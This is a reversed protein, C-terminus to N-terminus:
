KADPDASVKALADKYTVKHAESYNTARAHLKDAEPDHAADSHTKSGRDGRTNESEPEEAPATSSLNAFEFVLDDVTSYEKEGVKFKKEETFKAEMLLTELLPKQAPTIKKDAVAKDLKATISEKRAKLAFEAKDSELVKIRAEADTFQKEAKDARAKLEGNEATLAAVKARAENLEKEMAKDEMSAASFDIEYRKSESEGTFAAAEGGEAYLSLIDKLNHVAPTDGGLLAVAKLAKKYVKGMVKINFFIESSVRRYGGREVIDALKRPMSKIDAILKSGDRYLREIWGGAPLGDEKLLRQDRNHGLKIYPKLFDKTEAFSSVIEDIDEVSYKDGNWEGAAFIEIGKLDRTSATIEDNGNAKFFAEAEARMGDDAIGAMVKDKIDNFKM